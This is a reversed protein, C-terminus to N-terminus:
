GTEGMFYRRADKSMSPDLVNKHKRKNFVLNKRFFKNEALILIVPCSIGVGKKFAIFLKNLALQYREHLSFHMRLPGM